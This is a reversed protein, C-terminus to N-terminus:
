DMVNFNEDNWEQDCQKCLGTPREPVLLYRRCVFCEVIATNENGNLIRRCARLEERAVDEVTKGRAHRDWNLSGPTNKPKGQTSTTSTIEDNQVTDEELLRQYQQGQRSM